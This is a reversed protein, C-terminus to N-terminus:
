ENNEGLSKKRVAVQAWNEVLRCLSTFDSDDGFEAKTAALMQRVTSGLFMPIGMAEAEDICLSIDKYSLGTSFGFDFTGTLVSKPFKHETATNKGTSANIIELMQEPDLGAKTGMVMAESTIAIAACSLLNNALKMSQAQGASEGVHYPRGFINLLNQQEKFLIKPCAVIVSLTGERAGKVGGSIPCDIYAIKQKKVLDNIFKAARAGITSFDIITKVQDGHILGKESTVVAKVIDPNPLSLMIVEARHGVDLTSKARLGGLAVAADLADHNTDYIIIKRGSEILRRLMPQGMKGLGIFGLTQDKAM